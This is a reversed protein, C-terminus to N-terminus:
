CLHLHPATPGAATTCTGPVRCKGTDLRLILASTSEALRTLDLSEAPAPPAPSPLLHQTPPRPHAPPLVHVAEAMCAEAEGPCLAVVHPVGGIKDPPLRIVRRGDGWVGETAALKAGPAASEYLYLKGQYLVGHRPCWTANSHGIGTWTLVRVGGELEAHQRWLEQGAAAQHGAAAAGEPAESAPM